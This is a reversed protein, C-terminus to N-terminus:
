GRVHASVLALANDITDWSLNEPTDTPWHYNAPTKLETCAALCAARYGARLPPLADTGGAGLRLGRWLDVGARDAADQLENKLSADYDRIRLMGEGELLALHPSGVCELAVFRTTAPPLSAAHRKLFARMGEM